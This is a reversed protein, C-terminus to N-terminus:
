SASSATPHASTTHGAHRAGAQCPSSGIELASPTAASAVSPRTGQRSRWGALRRLRPRVARCPWAGFDWLGIRGFARTLRRVLSGGAFSVPALQPAARAAAASLRASSVGGCSKARVARLSILHVQTPAHSLPQTALWTISWRTPEVGRAVADWSSGYRGRRRELEVRTRQPTEEYLSYRFHLRAMSRGQHRRLWRIVPRESQPIRVPQRGAERVIAHSPPM